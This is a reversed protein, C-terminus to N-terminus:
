GVRKWQLTRIVPDGSAATTELRITLRDGVVSMARTLVMGVNEPSLAGVLTQTVTGDADDVAYTGFYADYGDRARSNNSAAASVAEQRAGSERRRRMFQAAFHGSRDYILLAVPDHGLTPEVVLEGSPTRDERSALEWTGILVQSLPATSPSL